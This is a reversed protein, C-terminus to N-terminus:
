EEEGGKVSRKLVKFNLFSFAATIIALSYAIASGRGLYRSNFAYNYVYWVPTISYNDAGWKIASSNGWSNFLMMPQEMMQFGSIIGTIILYIVVNKLMPIIIYIVRKMYSAGDVVSAEIISEDIGVLGGLVLIATIGVGQWQSMIILVAQGTAKQGLWNIQEEILGLNMLLHNVMGMRYDFLLAFIIGVAVSVTMSPLYAMVQMPRKLMTGKNYLALGMFLGIVMSLPVNILTYFAVNRISQWFVHYQEDILIYKYNDLGIFEMPHIADYKMFSIYLSFFLPFIGFVVWPAFFPIIFMKGWFNTKSNLRSKRKKAM